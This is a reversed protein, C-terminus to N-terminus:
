RLWGRSPMSSGSSARAPSSCSASRRRMRPPRHPHDRGWPPPTSTPRPARPSRPSCRSTRLRSVSGSSSPFLACRTRPSPRYGYAPFYDLLEAGAAAVRARADEDLPGAAIAVLYRRDSAARAVPAARFWGPAAFSAPELPRFSGAALRLEPTREPIGARAPVFAADRPDLLAAAALVAVGLIRVRPPTLLTADRRSTTPM